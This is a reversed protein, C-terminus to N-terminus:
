KRTNGMTNPKMTLTAGAPTATMVSMPLYRSKTMVSNMAKPTVKSTGM